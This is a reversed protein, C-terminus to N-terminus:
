GGTKDDLITWIDDLSFGVEQARRIFSVKGNTEPAFRRKEGIRTVTSIVDNEDYYRVTSVAIGANRAIEGIPLLKNASM